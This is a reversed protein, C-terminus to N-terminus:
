VTTRKQIYIHRISCWFFNLTDLNCALPVLIKLIVKVLTLIGPTSGIIPHLAFNNIIILLKVVVALCDTVPIHANGRNM